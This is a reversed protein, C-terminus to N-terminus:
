EMNAAEICMSILESLRENDKKIYTHGILAELGTSIRYDIIDANKASTYSHANRGRKFVETEEETLKDKILHYIKAQSKASVYRTAEKHLKAVPMNVSQMIYSRIYVEYVADGIYALSLPSVQNPVLNIEFEKM